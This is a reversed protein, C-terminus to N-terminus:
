RKKAPESGYGPSQAPQQEPIRVPIAYPSNQYLLAPDVGPCPYRTISYGVPLDLYHDVPYLIATRPHLYAKATYAGPVWYHLPSYSNPCHVFSFLGADARPTVVLFMGLLLATLWSKRAM